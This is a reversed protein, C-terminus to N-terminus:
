REARVAEAVTAGPARNPPPSNTTPQARLRLTTPPRLIRLVPDTMVTTAIAMVLLVAYLQADLVGLTFGLNLVILEMLGRTNMLAGVALASSQHLGGLWSGGAAGAVKAAIAVALVIVVTGFGGADLTSLDLSLGPLAFFIPLLFPTVDRIEDVARDRPWAIGFLFAGFIVHTGAVDTIAACVAAGCVAVLPAPARDLLWGILRRGPGLLAVALAATVGIAVPGHWPGALSVAALVVALLCWGLLDNFAAAGM